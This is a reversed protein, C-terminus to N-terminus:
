FILLIKTKEQKNKENKGYHIEFEEYNENEYIIKSENRESCLSRQVTLLTHYSM